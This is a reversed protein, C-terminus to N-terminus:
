YGAGVRQREAEEEDEVSLDKRVHDFSEILRGQPPLLPPPLPPLCLPSPQCPPATPPLSHSSTKSEQM